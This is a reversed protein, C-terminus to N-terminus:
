VAAKNINKKLESSFIRVVREKEADFAPRIFPIARSHTTGFEIMHSYFKSPGVNVQVESRSDKVTDTQVSKKLAETKVPAKDKMSKELPEAAKEMARKLAEGAVAEPLRRLKRELEKLGRVEISAAVAM